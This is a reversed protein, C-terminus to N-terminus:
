KKGAKQRQEYLERAFVSAELLLKQSLGMLARKVFRRTTDETLAYRPSKGVIFFRLWHLGSKAKKDEMLNYSFYLKNGKKLKVTEFKEKGQKDLGSKSYHVESKPKESAKPEEAPDASESDAFTRAEEALVTNQVHKERLQDLQHILNRDKKEDLERWVKDWTYKKGRKEKPVFDVIKGDKKCQTSSARDWSTSGGEWFEWRYTKGDLHVRQKKLDVRTGSSHHHKHKTTM